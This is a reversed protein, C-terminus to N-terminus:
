CYLKREALTSPKVLVNLFSFFWNLMQYITLLESSAYLQKNINLSSAWFAGSTELMWALVPQILLIKIGATIKRIDNYNQKM